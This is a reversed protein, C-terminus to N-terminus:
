LFRKLKGPLESFNHFEFDPRLARLKNVEVYMLNKKPLYLATLVKANKGTKIDMESDGILLTENVKADLGDLAKEIIEPHPKPNIVNDPGFAFEFYKGINLRKLHANLYASEAFSVIAMKIKKRKLWEFVDLINEHLKLDEFVKDLHAYYLKNLKEIDPIDFASSIEKDTSYFAYQIIEEDTPKKGFKEFAKRWVQLHLHLSDVITGDFDFLVVKLM